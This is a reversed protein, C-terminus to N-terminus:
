SSVPQREEQRAAFYADTAASIIAAAQEEKPGALEEYRHATVKSLGAENLIQEKRSRKM